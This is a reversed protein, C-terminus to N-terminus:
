RDLMRRRNCNRESLHPKQICKRLKHSIQLVNILVLAQMYNGRLTNLWLLTFCVSNALNADGSSASSRSTIQGDTKKLRNDSLGQAYDDGASTPACRRTLRASWDPGIDSVRCADAQLCMGRFSVSLWACRLQGSIFWRSRDSATRNNVGTVSGNFPKKPTTKKKKLGSGYNLTAKFAFPTFERLNTRMQEGIGKHHHKAVVM